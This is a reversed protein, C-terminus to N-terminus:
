SRPFETMGMAIRRQRLQLTVGSKQERQIAHWEGEHTPCHTGNPRIRLNKCNIANCFPKAM